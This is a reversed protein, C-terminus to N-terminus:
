TRGAMQQHLEAELMGDDVRRVDLYLLVLLLTPIPFLLASALQGLIMGAAGAIMGFLWRTGLSLAVYVALVLLTQGFHDRVLKFSRQLAGVAGKGELVVVPAAFSFFLALALGPLVCLILGLGVALGGLVAVGFLPLLRRLALAWAGGPSLQGGLARDGIIGILAAQALLTILMQLPILLLALLVMAGVQKMLSTSAEQPAGGDGAAERSLAESLKDLELKAAAQEAPAGSRMKERLEGSRKAFYRSRQQNREGRARLEAVKAEDPAMSRRALEGLFGLPLLVVACTLVLPVFHRAYLGLALEVLVGVHRPTADLGTKPFALAALPAAGAARPQTIPQGTKPCFTTVDPHETACHPCTM